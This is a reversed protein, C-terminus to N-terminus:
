TLAANIFDQFPGAEFLLQPDIAALPTETFLRANRLSPQIQLCWAALMSCDVKKGSALRSLVRHPFDRLWKNVLRGLWTDAVATELILDRAYRDGIRSRANAAVSAGLEPTWGLPCRFYVRSRPDQLYDAILGRQVGNDIHAQVCDGNGVCVFAHNVEPFNELMEFRAGYAIADGLVGYTRTFGIWGVDYAQGFRPAIHNIHVLNNM